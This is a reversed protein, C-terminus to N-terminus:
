RASTGSGRDILTEARAVADDIAHRLGQAKDQAQALVLQEARERAAALVARIGAAQYCTSDATAADIEAKRLDDVGLKGAHFADALVSMAARPQAYAYGSRAMCGRWGDLGARVAPDHALEAEVASELNSMTVGLVLAAYDDGYVRDRARTFCSDRYWSVQGGGPVDVSEWDSSPAVEGLPLRPGMLAERYADSVPPGPTLYGAGHVLDDLQRRATETDRALGYGLTRAADVDWPKLRTREYELDASDDYPLQGYDFGREAMCAAIGAQEADWLKELEERTGRLESLRTIREGRRTAPQAADSTKDPTSSRM